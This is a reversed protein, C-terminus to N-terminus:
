LETWPVWTAMQHCFSATSKDYNKEPDSSSTKHETASKPSLTTVYLTGFQVSIDLQTSSSKGIKSSQSSM